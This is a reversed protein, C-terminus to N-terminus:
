LSLILFDPDPFFFMPMEFSGPFDLDLGRLDVKLEGGFFGLSIRSFFSESGAESRSKWYEM